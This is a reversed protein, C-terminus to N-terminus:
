REASGMIVVCIRIVGDQEQTAVKYHHEVSWQLHYCYWNGPLNRLEHGWLNQQGSDLASFACSSISSRDIAALWGGRQASSGKIYGPFKGRGM